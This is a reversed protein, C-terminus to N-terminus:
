IYKVIVPKNLKKAFEIMTASGKSKGDWFCIVFDCVESMKKNRLPGAAKGYKSWEAPYVEVNYGFEEAFRKGLMDTGRCNGSIFVIDKDSQEKLCKSIFIKAEEYNNYNRSGAVVIKKM